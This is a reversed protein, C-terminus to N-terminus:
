TSIKHWKVRYRHWGWISFPFVYCSQISLYAIALGFAAYKSVLLWASIALLIGTSIDLWYLPEKNHARLYYYVPVTFYAFCLGICFIGSTLPTLIRVSWPHNVVYLFYISLWLIMIGWIFIGISIISSRFFLKDLSSFDKKAILMGFQPRKAALWIDSFQGIAGFLAWTMGFKGAAVAGHFHFILPTFFASMFYGSMWSLSIRWQMPWLDSRWDIISTTVYSIMFKFFHRYKVFLFIFLCIINVAANVTLAWLGAGLFIAAWTCTNVFIGRILRYAYIRKIQNCGELLFLAPALWLNVATLFCLFLWPWKWNIVLASKEQSFFLYGGFGLGILVVFGGIFYWKFVIRGLSVLRSLANTDGVIHGNNDFSLKSWEHSAFSIIVTGLGLEVFVRLALMSNFTYYYGQLESTFYTVIFFMTVPGAIILWLNTFIGYLVARDILLRDLLWRLKLKLSPQFKITQVKVSPSIRGENSLKDIPKLKSIRGPIGTNTSM